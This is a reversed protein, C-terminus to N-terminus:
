RQLRGALGIQALVVAPQVALADDAVQV